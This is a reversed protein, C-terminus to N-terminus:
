VHNEGKIVPMALVDQAAAYVDLMQKTEGIAEDATAHLLLSRGAMFITFYAFFLRTRMEWRM